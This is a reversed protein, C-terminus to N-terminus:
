EVYDTFPQSLPSVNSSEELMHLKTPSDCVDGLSRVQIHEQTCCLTIHDVGKEMLFISIVKGSNVNPCYLFHVRRGICFIRRTNSSTFRNRRDSERFGKVVVVSM